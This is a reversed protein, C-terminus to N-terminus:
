GIKLMFYLMLLGSFSFLAAFGWIRVFYDILVKRPNRPDYLIFIRSGIPHYLWGRFLNDVFEHTKGDEGIFRIVPIRVKPLYKALVEHDAIPLHESYSVIEGTTKCARRLFILRKVFLLLGSFLLVLGPTLVYLLPQTYDSDTIQIGKLKFKYRSMKLLEDSKWLSTAGIVGANNIDVPVKLGPVADEIGFESFSLHERYRLVEDKGDYSITVDIGNFSWSARRRVVVGNANELIDITANNDSRLDVILQRRSEAITQYSGVIQQKEYAAKIPSFLFISGIIISIKILNINNM